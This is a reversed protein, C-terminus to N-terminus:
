AQPTEAGVLMEFIGDLVIAAGLVEELVLWVGHCNGLETETAWFTLQM